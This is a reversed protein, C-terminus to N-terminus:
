KNIKSFLDPALELRRRKMAVLVAGIKEANKEAFAEVGRRRWEGISGQDSLQILEAQVLEAELLDQAREVGFPFAQHLERIVKEIGVHEELRDKAGSFAIALAVITLVSLLATAPTILKREMGRSIPDFAAPRLVLGLLYGSVFGGIHAANDIRPIVLGIVLILIASRVLAKALLQSQIDRGRRSFCYLLGLLGCIAGSAGLSISFGEGRSAM